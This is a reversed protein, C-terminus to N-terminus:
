QDVSGGEPFFPNHEREEEVTTVPGHGPCLLTGGPLTLLNGRIADLANSYDAACGGVSGAFLADGVFCVPPERGEVLFSTGGPTHGPTSLAQVSFPGARFSDGWGIGLAGEIREAPHARVPARPFAKRIAPLAAVHDPHGHTLLIASPHLSRERIHGLIPEPDVGTDVVLCSRDAAALVFANVTMSRFRSAFLALEGPLAAKPLWSKRLSVALRQSDLGLVPAIARIAAEDGNGAKAEKLDALEVGAREALERNTIRLGDQAKAVIDECFDELHTFPPPLQQM